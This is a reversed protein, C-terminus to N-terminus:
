AWLRNLKYKATWKVAFGLWLKTNRSYIPTSTNKKQEAQIFDFLELSWKIGGMYRKRINKRPYQITHTTSHSTSGAQEETYRKDGSTVSPQRHYGWCFCLLSRGRRGRVLELSGEGCWRLLLFCLVLAVLLLLSWDLSLESLSLLCLCWWFCEFPLLHAVQMKVTTWLNLNGNNSASLGSVREM